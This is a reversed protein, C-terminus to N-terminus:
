TLGTMPGLGVPGTGDRRPMISSRETRSFVVKGTEEVDPVAVKDGAAARGKAKARDRAKARDKAKVRAKAKVRDKAGAVARVQQTSRVRTEAAARGQAEEPKLGWAKRGQEM